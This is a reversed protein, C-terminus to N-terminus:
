RCNIHLPLRATWAQLTRCPGARRAVHTRQPPPAAAHTRGSPSISGTVVPADPGPRPRPRPVRALETWGSDAPAAAAADRALPQAFPNAFPQALTRVSPPLAPEEAAAAPQPLSGTSAPAPPQSVLIAGDDPGNSVYYVASGMAAALGFLGVVILVTKARRLFRRWRTHRGKVIDELSVSRIADLREAERSQRSM